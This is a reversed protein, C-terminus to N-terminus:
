SQVQPAAPPPTASTKKKGFTLYQQGITLLNNIFWYLALGGPLSVGIVVTMVPMFYVMQKNMTALLNEDIAGTKKRISKPPQRVSMMRAQWFQALGALVALFISPVALDIEGLFMPSIHGPNPVWAYLMDLNTSSLGDRMVRYLAYLIPLQIILPLCSSFPSVKQSSYMEMMAKAMEDKKDKYKEKLEDIKPQLEALAKQSKISQRSLPYLIVKIALTLVIIVLGIDHGPIFDYLLVLLNFIPQYLITQFIDM